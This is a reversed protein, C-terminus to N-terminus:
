QNKFSLLIPRFIDKIWHPAYYFDHTLNQYTEHQLADQIRLIEDARIEKAGITRLAQIALTSIEGVTGVNKPTTKKFKINKGYVQIKRPTGDTLYVVNMPVQTSLGLKNLAYDGTPVIRAKDRKAIAKAVEDLSPMVPMKFLTSIKPLVYMGRAVRAIAEKKVLRELAKRVAEASHELLFDDIFFLEGKGVAQMKALIQKELSDNM